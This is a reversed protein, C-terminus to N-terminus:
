VSVALLVFRHKVKAQGGAGALPNWPGVFWKMKSASVM